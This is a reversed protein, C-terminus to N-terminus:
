HHQLEKRPAAEIKTEERTARDEERGSFVYVLGHISLGIGWPITTWYAYELGGGAAIDIVWLLANVIVFIATHSMLGAFETQPPRVRPHRLDWMVLALTILLLVAGGIVLGWGWASSIEGVEWTLDGGLGISQGEGGVLIFVGLFAAIGGVIGLFWETVRTM